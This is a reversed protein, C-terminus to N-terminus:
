ELQANLYKSCVTEGGGPRYGFSRFMEYLFSYITEEKRSIDEWQEANIGGITVHAIYYVEEVVIYEPEPTPTPTVTISPIVTVSPTVTPTPMSSPVISPTVPAPTITITIERIRKEYTVSQVYLMEKLVKNMVRKESYTNVNLLPAQDSDESFKGEDTAETMYVLLMDDSNADIDSIGVFNLEVGEVCKGKYMTGTYSEAKEIIATKHDNILRVAFDEQSTNDVGVFLGVVASALVVLAVVGFLVILVPFLIPFLLVVLASILQILLSGLLMLLKVLLKGTVKAMGKGLKKLVDGLAARGVGLAAEGIGSDEGEQFLQKAIFYKMERKMAATAGSTGSTKKKARKKGNKKEKKKLNDTHEKSKIKNKEALQETKEEGQPTKREKPVKQEEGTKEKSHVKNKEELEEISNKSSVYVTQGSKIGNKEAISEIDYEATRRLSPNNLKVVERNVQPSTGYSVGRSQEKVASQVKGSSVNSVKVAGQVQPGRVVEKPVILEVSTAAALVAMEKKANRIRKIQRAYAKVVKANIRIGTKVAGYSTKALKGSVNDSVETILVFDRANSEKM